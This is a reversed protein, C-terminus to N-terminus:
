KGKNVSRHAAVFREVLVMADGRIIHLNGINAIGTMNMSWTTAMTRVLPNAELCVVQRLEVKVDYAFWYKETEHTNISVYLFPNGPTRRWEESEVMVIGAAALRRETEKKIAEREIGAKEAYRKINPQIEEM